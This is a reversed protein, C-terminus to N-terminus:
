RRYQLGDGGDAKNYPNITLNPTNTFLALTIDTEVTVPTPTAGSIFKIKISDSKFHKRM